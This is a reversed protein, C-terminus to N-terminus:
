CMMRDRYRFTLFADTFHTIERALYTKRNNMAATPCAVIVGSVMAAWGWNGHYNDILDITYTHTPHAFFKLDEQLFM